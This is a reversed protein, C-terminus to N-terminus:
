AVSMGALTRTGSSLPKLPPPSRPRCPWMSRYISAFTTDAGDGTTTREASSPSFLHKSHGRGLSRVRRGGHACLRDSGLVDGMRQRSDTADAPTPSSHPAVTLATRTREGSSALELASSPPSVRKAQEAGFRKEYKAFGRWQDPKCHGANSPPGLCIAM